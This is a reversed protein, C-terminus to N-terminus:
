FPNVPPTQTFWDAARYRDAPLDVLLTYLYPRQRRRTSVFLQLYSLLLAASAMPYLCTIHGPVAVIAIVVLVFAVALQGTHKKRVANERGACVCVLFLIVCSSSPLAALYTVKPLFVGSKNKSEM